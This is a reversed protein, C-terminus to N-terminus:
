YYCSYKKSHLIYFYSLPYAIKPFKKTKDVFFFHQLPFYPTAKESYFMVFLLFFNTILHSYM